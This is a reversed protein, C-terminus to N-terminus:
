FTKPFMLYISNDNGTATVTGDPSFTITATGVNHTLSNGGILLALSNQFIRSTSLDRTGNGTMKLVSDDYVLEPQGSAVGTGFQFTIGTGRLSQLVAMAYMATNTAPHGTTEDFSNTYLLTFSMTRSSRVGRSALRSGMNLYMLSRMTNNNDNVAVNPMWVVDKAPFKQNIANFVSEFATRFQAIDFDAQVFDNIGGIVAVVDYEDSAPTNQVQSLILNDNGYFRAGSVGVSFIRYKSMAEINTKLATLYTGATWSDGFLLVKITGTEEKLEDMGMELQHLESDINTVATNYQATLDVADNDAYTPFGYYQTPTGAM